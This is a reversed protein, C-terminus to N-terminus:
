FFILDVKYSQEHLRADTDKDKAHKLSLALQVWRTRGGGGGGGGRWSGVVITGLPVNPHGLCLRM